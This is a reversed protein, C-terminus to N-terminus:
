EGAIRQDVRKRAYTVSDYADDTLRGLYGTEYRAIAAEMRVVRTGGLLSQEPKLTYIPTVSYGTVSSTGLENDRTIELDLIVSYNTAPEAADGYFDGLSWAVLTGATEDFDIQQLLHSHTGIIADVGNSLLLDRVKEQSASINENYESGWHVLAITVDPEEKAVNDLIKTISKSDIKKYDTTYDEYLVNVCDESGAPLGTNDMGKTFAVFAVRIGQLEVLTFGGSRRFAEADTFTGVCGIGLNRFGAITSQLGLVGSRIAASNATQVLDVGMDALAQALSNPASSTKTGYPAGALTGEFNVISLDAQALVPAVDLFTDSFDYGAANMATTVVGDTVNLDGTAAIHVVTYPETPATTEPVSPQTAETTPQTAPETTAQTQSTQTPETPQQPGGTSVWVILATAMVLAGVMFILRLLTQRRQRAEAERRLQRKRRAARQEQLTKEQEPTM